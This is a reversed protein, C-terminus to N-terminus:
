HGRKRLEKTIETVASENDAKRQGTVREDRVMDLREDRQRILEDTDREDFRM